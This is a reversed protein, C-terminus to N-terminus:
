EVGRRELAEVSRAVIEHQERWEHRLPRLWPNPFAFAVGYVRAISFVRVPARLGAAFRIASPPIPRGESALLVREIGLTSPDPPEIPRPLLRMRRFPRRSGAGRRTVNRRAQSRRPPCRRTPETVSTRSGSGTGTSRCTRRSPARRPPG